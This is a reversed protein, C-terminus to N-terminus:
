LGRFQGVQLNHGWVVLIGEEVAWLVGSGEERAM